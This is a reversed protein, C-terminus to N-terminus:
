FTASRQSYQDFISSKAFRKIDMGKFSGPIYFNDKYLTNCVSTTNIHPQVKLIQKEYLTELERIEAEFNRM